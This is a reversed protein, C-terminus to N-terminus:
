SSFAPNCEPQFIGQNCAQIEDYYVYTSKCKQRIVTRLMHIYKLRSNHNYTMATMLHPM